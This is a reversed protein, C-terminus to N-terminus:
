SNELKGRKKKEFGFPSQPHFGDCGAGTKQKTCEHHRKLVVEKLRPLAEECRSLEENRRPKDQMNQVDEDCQWHIISWEKRKAECRDLLGADEEEKDLIQAGRRWPTSKTIEHLLRASGEASKIM